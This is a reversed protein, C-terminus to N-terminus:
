GQISLIHTVFPNRIETGTMGSARDVQCLAGTLVKMFGQYEM